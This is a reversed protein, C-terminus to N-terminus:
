EAIDVASFNQRGFPDLVYNLVTNRVPIAVISHAIPALPVEKKLIAQADRYIAARKDPETTSRGQQLLKEFDQNCWRSRNSGGAVGDCSLM